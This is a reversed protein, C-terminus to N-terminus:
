DRKNLSHACICYVYFKMLNQQLETLLHLNWQTCFIKGVVNKFVENKSSDNPNSWSAQLNNKCLTAVNIGHNKDYSDLNKDSSTQDLNSTTGMLTNHLFENKEENLDGLEEFEVHGKKLRANLSDLDATDPLYVKHELPKLGHRDVLKWFTTLTTNTKPMSMARKPRNSIEMGVEPTNHISKSFQKTNELFNKGKDLIQESPAKSMVNSEKIPFKSKPLSKTKRLKRVGAIEPYSCISEFQEEIEKDAESALSGLSVQEQIYSEPPPCDSEISQLSLALSRVSPRNRQIGDSVISSLSQTFTKNPQTDNRGLGINEEPTDMM